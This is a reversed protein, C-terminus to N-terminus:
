LWLDFVRGPPYWRLRKRRGKKLQNRAAISLNTEGHYAFNNLRGTHLQDSRQGGLDALELEKGRDDGTWALVGFAALAKM